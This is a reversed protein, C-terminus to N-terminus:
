QSSCSSMVALISCFGGMLHLKLCTQDQNTKTSNMLFHDSLSIVPSVICTNLSPQAGRLRHTNGSLDYIYNLIKWGDLFIYVFYYGCERVFEKYEVMFSNPRDTDTTQDARTSINWFTPKVKVTTNPSTGTNWHKSCPWRLEWMKFGSLPSSPTSLLQSDAVRLSSHWVLLM